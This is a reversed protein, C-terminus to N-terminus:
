FLENLEDFEHDFFRNLGSLREAPVQKLTLETYSTLYIFLDHKKINEGTKKINKKKIFNKPAKGWAGEATQRM